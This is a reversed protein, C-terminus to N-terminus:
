SQERYKGIWGRDAREVIMQIGSKGVSTETLFLVDLKTATRPIRNSM